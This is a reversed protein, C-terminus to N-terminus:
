AGRRQAAANRLAVLKGGVRPVEPTVPPTPKIKKEFEEAPPVIRLTRAYDLYKAPSVNDLRGDVIPFTPRDMQQAVRIIAEIAGAHLVPDLAGADIAAAISRRTAEVMTADPTVRGLRDQLELRRESLQLAIRQAAADGALAEPYVKRWLNNLREIEVAPGDEGGSTRLARRVQGPALGTTAAIQARPVGALHLARVDEVVTM